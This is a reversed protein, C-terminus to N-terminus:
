SQLPAPACRACLTCQHACSHLKQEPFGPSESPSLPLGSPQVLPALSHFVEISCTRVSAVQMTLDFPYRYLSPRAARAHLVLLAPFPSVARGRPM